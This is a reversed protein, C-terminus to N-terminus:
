LPLSCDIDRSLLVCLAQGFCHRRSTWTALPNTTAAKIDVDRHTVSSPGWATPTVAITLVSQEAPKLAFFDFRYFHPVAGKHMVDTLPQSSLLTAVSQSASSAVIAYRCEAVADMCVVTVAYTCPFDAPACNAADDM